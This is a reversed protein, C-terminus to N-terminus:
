DPLVFVTVYWNNNSKLYKEAFFTSRKPGLRASVVRDHQRFTPPVNRDEWGEEGMRLVATTNSEAAGERTYAGGSVLSHGPGAVDQGSQGNCLGDGESHVRQTAM